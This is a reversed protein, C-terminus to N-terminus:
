PISMATRCPLFPRPAARGTMYVGCCCMQVAKMHVVYSASSVTGFFGGEQRDRVKMMIHANSHLVIFIVEPSGDFVAADEEGAKGATAYM